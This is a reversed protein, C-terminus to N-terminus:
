QTISGTGSFTGSASPSQWTGNVNLSNGSVSVNASWTSGLTTTGGVSKGIAVMNGSRDVYGIIAAPISGELSGQIDGNADIRFSFTGNLPTGGTRQGTWGCNLYGRYVSPQITSGTTLNGKGSFEGKISPSSLEGQVTLTNGSIVLKGQWSTLDPSTGGSATGTAILNGNLDVKGNISGSYDGEFSGQVTGNADIIVKFIGGITSNIETIRGTWSGIVLGQFKSAVLTPSITTPTPSLTPAVGTSTPIITSPNLKEESKCGRAGIFTAIVLVLLVLLVPLFM